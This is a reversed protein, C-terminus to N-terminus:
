CTVERNGRNQRKQREYTQSRMPIQRREDNDKSGPDCNWQQYQGISQTEIAGCKAM